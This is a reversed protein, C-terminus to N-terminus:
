INKIAINDYNIAYDNSEILVYGLSDKGKYIIPDTNLTGCFVGGKVYGLYHIHGALVIKDNNINYISRIRKMLLEPLMIKNIGKMALGAYKGLVEMTHNGNEINGHFLFLNKYSYTFVNDNLKELRDIYNPIRKDGQYDNDGLIIATKELPFVSSFRKIFEKYIDLLDYNTGYNDVNDGLLFVNDPSEEAIIDEFLESEPLPYHIDSLVLIKEMITKCYLM